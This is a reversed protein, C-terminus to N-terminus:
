DAPAPAARKLRVQTIAHRETAAVRLHWGGTTVSEGPATPVRGLLALVLGAVTTYDGDPRGDLHVDLDPLDHVPFGGPVLISGDAERGVGIVDRDTEDYIEGVVEELLDELTVIGDVVGHEDIVLAFQERESKFRRLADAVPVSDPLLLPPRAVDAATVASEDTLLDRLSAIGVSEELANDRIVPARSHGSAALLRRAEEVPTEADLTFVDRRSILM